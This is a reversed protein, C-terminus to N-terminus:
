FRERIAAWTHSSGSHGVETHHRRMVLDTLQSHQPLIIPHKLDSEVAANTLRGGVRAIGKILIPQFKQMFRPCHKSIKTHDALFLYPFHKQQVSKILELEADKLEEVSLPM